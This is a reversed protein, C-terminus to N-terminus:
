FYICWDVELGRATRWDRDLYGAVSRSDEEFAGEIIWDEDMGGGISGWDQELVGRTM